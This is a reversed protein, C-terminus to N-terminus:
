AWVEFWADEVPEGDRIIECLSEVAIAHADHITMKDVIRVTSRTDAYATRVYLEVRYATQRKPIAYIQPEGNNEQPHYRIHKKM